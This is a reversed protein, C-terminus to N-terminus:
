RVGGPALWPVEERGDQAAGTANHLASVHDLVARARRLSFLRM